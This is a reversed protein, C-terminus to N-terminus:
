NMLENDCWEVIAGLHGFFSLQWEIQGRERQSLALTLPLL